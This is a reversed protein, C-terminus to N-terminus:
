KQKGAEGTLLRAIDAVSNALPTTLPEPAKRDLGIELCRAYYELIQEVTGTFKDLVSPGFRELDTVISRANHVKDALSVLLVKSDADALHTLYAQKREWYDQKKKLEADVADSCGLVVDAVHKGFRAQIDAARPLGGADEVADHLLGAIALDEDGGAELVLSAVGLLHAVYPVSTGKRVQPAHIAMAYGVAQQFRDSFVTAQEPM